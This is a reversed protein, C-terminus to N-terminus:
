TTIAVASHATEEFSVAVATATPSLPCQVSLLFTEMVEPQLEECVYQFAKVNQAFSLSFFSSLSEIERVSFLQDHKDPVISQM